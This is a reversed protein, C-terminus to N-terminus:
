PVEFRVFVLGGLSAEVVVIAASGGVAAEVVLGGRVGVEV